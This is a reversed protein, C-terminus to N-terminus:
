RCVGDVAAAAALPVQVAALRAGLGVPLPAMPRLTCHQTAQRVGDLGIGNLQEEKRPAHM